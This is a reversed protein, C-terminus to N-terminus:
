ENGGSGHRTFWIARFPLSSVGIVADKVVLPNTELFVAVSLLFAQYFLNKARKTGDVLVSEVGPKHQASRLWKTRTRCAVSVRSARKNSAEQSEPKM